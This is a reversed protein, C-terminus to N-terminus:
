KTSISEQSLLFRKWKLGSSFGGLGGGKALVRHCPILLPIPNAGCANGVARAARPQGLLRALESYSRTQGPKLHRLASWVQQQFPTAATLDLPPLKGPPQGQMVRRLAQSTLTHWQRFEPPGAAVPLHHNTAAPKRQPFQIRTLGRTSYRATFQGQATNIPATFM